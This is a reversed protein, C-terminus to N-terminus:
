RGRNLTFPRGVTDRAQQDVKGHRVKLLFPIRRHLADEYNHWTM